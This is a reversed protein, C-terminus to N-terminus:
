AHENPCLSSSITRLVYCTHYNSITKHNGYKQTLKDLTTNRSNAKAPVSNLVFNANLATVKPHKRRTNWATRM